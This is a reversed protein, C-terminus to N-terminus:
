IHYNTLVSLCAARTNMSYISQIAILTRQIKLAYMLMTAVFTYISNTTIRLKLINLLGIQYSILILKKGTRQIMVTASTEESMLQQSNVKVTFCDIAECTEAVWAYIDNLIHINM